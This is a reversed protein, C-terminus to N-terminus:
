GKPFNIATKIPCLDILKVIFFAKRSKWFYALAHKPLHDSGGVRSDFLICKFSFM